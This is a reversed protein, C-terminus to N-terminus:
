DSPCQRVIEAMALPDRRHKRLLGVLGDNKPNGTELMDAIFLIAEGDNKHKDLLQLLQKADYYGPKIGHSPTGNKLEPEPILLVAEKPVKCQRSGTQNVNM